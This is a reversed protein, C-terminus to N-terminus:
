QNAMGTPFGFGMDSAKARSVRTEVASDGDYYTDIRSRARTESDSFLTHQCGALPGTILTALLLLAASLKAHM